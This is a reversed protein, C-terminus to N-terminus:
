FPEDTLSLAAEFIKQILADRKQSADEFTLGNPVPLGDVIIVIATRLFKKGLVREVITWILDDTEATVAEQMDYLTLEKFDIREFDQHELKM